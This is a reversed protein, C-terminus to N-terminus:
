AYEGFKAVEYITDEAVRSKRIANKITWSQLHWSNIEANFASYRTMSGARFTLLSLEDFSWLTSKCHISAQHGQSGGNKERGVAHAIQHVDPIPGTAFSSLVTPVCCKENLKDGSELILRAPLM